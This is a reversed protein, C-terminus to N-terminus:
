KLPIARFTIGIMKVNFLIFVKILELIPDYLDPYGAHHYMCCHILFALRVACDQSAPTSESRITSMVKPVM